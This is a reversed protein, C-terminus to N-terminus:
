GWSEVSAALLPWSFAVIRSRREGAFDAVGWRAHFKVVWPQGLRPIVVFDWRAGVTASAFSQDATRSSVVKYRYTIEDRVVNSTPDDAGAIGNGIQVVISLLADRALQWSAKDPACILGGTLHTPHYATGDFRASYGGAERHLLWGAAHDWPMLKNYFLLHCHGAAAMRYEHAACRLCSSMGLRSLNGNVITRRPQPLFNTGIVADMEEVPAAAAVKIVARSGDQGQM